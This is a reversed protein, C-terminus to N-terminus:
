EQTMQGNAPLITSQPESYDSLEGTKAGIPRSWLDLVGRGCPVLDGDCTCQEDIKQDM